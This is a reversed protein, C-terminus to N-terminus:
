AAEAPAPPNLIDEAQQAATNLQDTVPQLDPSAAALAAELNSLATTARTAAATLDDIAAMLQRRRSRFPRYRHM